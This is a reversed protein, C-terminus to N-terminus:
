NETPAKEVHDVVLRDVSARTKDLRLGLRNVSAALTAGGEPDTAAGGSPSSPQSPLDIGDDHLSGLLDMLSFEISAQYVGPLQTMNVVQRGEGGGLVNIMVAVGNMTIADSTMHMSRSEPDFKLSFDGRLGMNYTSSGDPNRTLLIAGGDPAEIITQGPKLPQTPDVAQLNSAEAPKLKAGNKGVVIALVPQDDLTARHTALAFRDKLLAQTMAPIADKVAGAPLTAIIDFRDTPLWDPGTIEYTHANYAYAILRKLSMFTFTARSGDIHTSEPKIGLNLNAILKQM